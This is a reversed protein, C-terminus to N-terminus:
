LKGVSGEITNLSEKIAAQIKQAVHLARRGDRGSVLPQSRNAVCNLFAKIEEMLSDKMEIKIDEEVIRPMEGDGGEKKFIAIKQAAYDISIYEGPQFLRIKRLAERAVRSATVNAVCGNRFKLRANAIDVKGSVVPVGVAEVSEFDSKVLNLIIDIDHIMLDLVVDVDVGRNPFPSLRDSEIFLPSVCKGELAVVAGNFRELHGIQLLADNRKAEEILKEAEGVTSTMPKELMVDIGRALCDKAIEFHTETPTVVSVADVKDLIDRHSYFSGTNLRNALNDAKERDLDVVGVLEANPLQFYKEAHFRGLYGAGIVGTKITKM